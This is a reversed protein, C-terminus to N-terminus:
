SVLESTNIGHITDLQVQFSFVEKENILIPKNESNLSVNKRGYLVVDLQIPSNNEIAQKFLLPPNETDFEDPLQGILNWLDTIRKVASATKKSDDGALPLYHKFKFGGCAIMQGDVGKIEDPAVIEMELTIMPNGSSKSVGFTEEIVRVVYADKPLQVNQNLPIAVSKAEETATKTNIISM